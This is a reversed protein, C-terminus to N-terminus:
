FREKFCRQHQMTTVVGAENWWTHTLLVFEAERIPLLALPHFSEKMGKEAEKAVPRPLLTGGGM